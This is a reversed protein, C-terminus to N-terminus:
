PPQNKEKRADHLAHAAKRRIATRTSFFMDLAIRGKIHDLTRVRYVSKQMKRFRRNSREVTNSTSPCNKDDLFMLSRELMPSTLTKRLCPSHKSRKAVGRLRRLKRLATGRRCRRDYLGYVNEVLSRLRRLLPGSRKPLGRMINRFTKREGPTPKKKVFLFRNKFLEGIKGQIRENKRVIAKEATTSPRGRKSRKTKTDALERRVAAVDKLAAKNVAQKVHFECIQHIVGPFVSRVAETYLKSGDTTVGHLELSRDALIKQFANLLELVDAETPDHDFVRYM